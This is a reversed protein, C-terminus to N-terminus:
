TRSRTILNKEWNKPNINDSCDHGHFYCGYYEFITKLEECIGDVKFNEIRREGLSCNEEHRINIAREKAIHELWQISEKSYRTQLRFDDKKERLSYWGTAMEMATCNLYMSNCDLGIIKKCIETGGRIKTVGAEHYRTFVISPGGCVGKERFEKYIHAHNESFNSFYVDQPLNKFVYKQTIGALSVADKFIDLNKEKYVVHMKGVAETMGTVDLDNYFKVYQKFSEWGHLCWTDIADQYEEESVISNTLLSYFDERKPLFRAELKQLSDFWQYPFCAKPNKVGYAKYFNALSTGAALYNTLDLFTLRGTSIAMYGRDKSIIKSPLNDLRKLSSALYRKILPIDYRSGNFTLIVHQNCYKEFSNKLTELQKHCKKNFKQDPTNNDTELKDKLNQLDEELQGFIDKYKQHM